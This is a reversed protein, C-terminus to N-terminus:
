QTRDLFDIGLELFKEGVNKELLNIVLKKAKCILDM